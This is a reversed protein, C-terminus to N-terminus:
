LVELRVRATGSRVMGIREAAARSLDIVRHRHFPGRDNIRVVVSRQNRLNTVRVRSGFRLTRHAATLRHPRYREGSATRRGAFRQAYFSARGTGVVRGRRARVEAARVSDARAAERAARALSDALFARRRASADRRAVEEAVRGSRAASAARARDLVAALAEARAARDLSDAVAQARALSDARAQQRAALAPDPGPGLLGCAPLAALALACAAQLLSRRPTPIPM